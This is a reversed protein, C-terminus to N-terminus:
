RSGERLWGNLTEGQYYRLNDVRWAGGQRRLLYFVTRARFGDSFRVAVTAANGKVSAAGVGFRTPYEQNDTFPDGDIAPVEDPSSPTALYGAIRARLGTSLLDRKALVTSSDFAMTGAFHRELLLQVVGAPSSDPAFSGPSRDLTWVIDNLAFLMTNPDVRHFEFLGSDCSLSTGPVPFAVIGLAEAVRGAPAPLSGQFLADPASRTATYVANGCTLGGPGSVSHADFRVREGIWRESDGIGSDKTTDWPAVVARILRWEGVVSSTVTAPRGKEMANQADLQRPSATVGALAVALTLFLPLSLFTPTRHNPSM